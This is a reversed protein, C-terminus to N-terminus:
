LAPLGPYLTEMENQLRAAFRLNSKWYPYDMTGDDCGSIIMVQAASKGDIQTVASVRRGDREIADRHVDLVVKITPYEKLYSEITEASRKYGGNYSPYDHLTTDHIVAIGADTLQKEIAGGVAIMNKENDTSRSNYEPNFFETSQEYSETAHTHYILVQPKGNKYIKFDLEKAIYSEAKAASIKTSNKIVANKYSLFLKSSSSAINFNEHLIRGYNEPVPTQMVAQQADDASAANDDAGSSQPPLIDADIDGSSIAFPDTIEPIYIENDDPCIIKGALEGGGPAGMGASVSVFRKAFDSKSLNLYVTYFGLMVMAASLVATGARLSFKSSKM